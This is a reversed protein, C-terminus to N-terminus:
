SFFLCFEDLELLEHSSFTMDPEGFLLWSILWSDKSLTEVLEVWRSLVPKVFQGFCLLYILSIRTM